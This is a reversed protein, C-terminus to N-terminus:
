LSRGKKRPAADPQGIRRRSFGRLELNFSVHVCARGNSKSDQMGIKLRQDADLACLCGSRGKVQFAGMVM